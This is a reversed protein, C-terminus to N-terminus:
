EVEISQSMQFNFRAFISTDCTYLNIQWIYITSNKKISIRQTKFNVILGLSIDILFLRLRHFICYKM